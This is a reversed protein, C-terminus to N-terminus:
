RPSASAVLTFAHPSGRHRPGAPRPLGGFDTRKGRWPESRMVDFNMKLSVFYQGISDHLERAVKRREMDQLQLLRASLRRVAEEARKRNRLEITLQYFTFFLILVAAGFAATLAAQVQSLTAASVHKRSQLLANEEAEM